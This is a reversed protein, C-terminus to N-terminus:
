EEGGGGGDAPVGQERARGGEGKECESRETMHSKAATAMTVMRM